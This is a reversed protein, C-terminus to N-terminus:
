LISLGYFRMLWIKTITKSFRLLSIWILRSSGTNREISFKETHNLLFILSELITQVIRLLSGTQVEFGAGYWAAGRVKGGRVSGGGDLCTSAPRWLDYLWASKIMQYKMAFLYVLLDEWPAGLQCVLHGTLCWRCRYRSRIFCYPADFDHM